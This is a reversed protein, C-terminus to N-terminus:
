QDRRGGVKIDLRRCTIMVPEAMIHDLDRVCTTQRMLNMALVIRSMRPIDVHM